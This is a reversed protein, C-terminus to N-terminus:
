PQPGQDKDRQTYRWLSWFTLGALSVGSIIWAVAIFPAM